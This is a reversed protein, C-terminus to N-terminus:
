KKGTKGPDAQIEKGGSPICIMERAIRINRGEVSAHMYLKQKRRKLVKLIEKAKEEDIPDQFDAFWYIADVKDFERALIADATSKPGEPDNYYTNSRDAFVEYVEPVPLPRGFDVKTRSDKAVERYFPDQYLYWFRKFREESSGQRMASVVSVINGRSKGRGIGCGVHLIVPSGKAVRDLEHIVTPLYRTMSGSVDLVVGISRVNLTTGFVILGKGGAMGTGMGMGDGTGLGTGNGSGGGSGAGGLGGAGMSGGLAGLSSMASSSTPEPLTFTSTVNAAAVRATNPKAISAQMKKQSPSSVPSGGGGGSPKFDVTKEREPPIVAVVVFIGIVIIVGHIILSIALSGAGLKRLFGGKKPETPLESVDQGVIADTHTNMLKTVFYCFPALRSTALLSPFCCGLSLM